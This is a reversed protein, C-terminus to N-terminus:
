AVPVAPSAAIFKRFSGTTGLVPTMVSYYFGTPVERGIVAKHADEITAYLGIAGLSGNEVSVGVLIVPDSM